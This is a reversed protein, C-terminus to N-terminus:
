KVAFYMRVSVTVDYLNLSDFATFFRVYFRTTAGSKIYPAINETGPITISNYLRTNAPTYLSGDALIVGCAYYNSLDYFLTVSNTKLYNAAANTNERGQIIFDAYAYDPIGKFDPLVCYNVYEESPTTDTTITNKLYTKIELLSYPTTISWGM